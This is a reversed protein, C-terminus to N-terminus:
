AVMEEDKNWVHDRTKQANLQQLLEDVRCQRSFRFDLKNQNSVQAAVLLDRCRQLTTSM